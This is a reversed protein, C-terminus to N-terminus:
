ISYKRHFTTQQQPRALKYGIGCVTRILNGAEGLKLRLRCIHVDVTRNSHMREPEPWALDLLQNRSLVRGANQALARLVAFERPNLDVPSDAVIAEHGEMDVRLTGVVIWEVHAGRVSPLGLRNLDRVFAEVLESIETSKLPEIAASEEVQLEPPMPAERLPSISNQGASPVRAEVQIM